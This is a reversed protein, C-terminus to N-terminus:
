GIPTMIRGEIGSKIDRKEKIAEVIMDSILLSGVTESPIIKLYRDYGGIVYDVSAIKYSKDNKVPKGNVFVDYIVAKDDNWKWKYKLGSVQLIGHTANEQVIKMIDGGSCSFTQVYNEFPLMEAIDKLTIPGEPIRKRIGGSNLLAIDSGTEERIVDCLWNGVNSEDRYAPIWDTELYGIVQGFQEDILVEFSDAFSILRQNISTKDALLTILQGNYSQVTDGAITLDLKGLNQCSAGAQVILINNVKEPEKLRTHSHGGIIVDINNLNEALEVDNEYGLHSLVIILDTGPDIEDVIDNIVAVPELSYFGDLNDEKAMGVMEHYTIGIVGVKLGSVNYIHYKNEIFGNDESDVLNACVVPFESLGVLGRVNEAQNDFEHNGIVMGDYGIMNMMEILAGGEVDKYEMNCILNGTMLDGADFLLSNESQKRIEQVYYDLAV